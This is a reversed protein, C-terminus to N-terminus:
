VEPIKDLLDDYREEGLEEADERLRPLLMDVGKIPSTTAQNGVLLFLTLRPYTDHIKKLKEEDYQNPGFIVFIPLKDRDRNVMRQNILRDTEENLKEINRGWHDKLKPYKRKVSGINQILGPRIEEDIVRQVDDQNVQIIKWNYNVGRHDQCAEYVYSKGAFNAKLGNVCFIRKKPPLLTYRPILAAAPLEVWSSSLHELMETLTEPDLEGGAARDIIPEMGELGQSLLARAVQRELTYENKDGSLGGGLAYLTDELRRADVVKVKRLQAALNKELYSIWTPKTPRERLPALRQLIHEIAADSDAAEVPGLQALELRRWPPNALANEAAGSVYIPVLIFDDDRWDRWRLLTTDQIFANQELFVEGNTPFADKELLVVGGHCDGIGRLLRERWQREGSEEGALDVVEYGNDVLATKVAPLLAPGGDASSQYAIYIRPLRGRWNHWQTDPKDRIETIFDQIAAEDTPGWDKFQLLAQLFELCKNRGQGHLKQLLEQSFSRASGELILDPTLHGFETSNLLEERRRVSNLEELNEALFNVLQHWTSM